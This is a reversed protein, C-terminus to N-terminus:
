ALSTALPSQNSLVPRGGGEKSGNHDSPHKSSSEPRLPCSARRLPPLGEEPCPVPTCPGSGGRRRSGKGESCEQCCREQSAVQVGTTSLPCGLMCRLPHWTTGVEVLTMILCHNEGLTGCCLGKTLRHFERGYSATLAGLM